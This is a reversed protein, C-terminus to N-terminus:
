YAFVDKLNLYKVPGYQELTRVDLMEKKGLVMINYKKDKMYKTSFTKLDNFTMGPVKTFVDKRLDYTLNFKRANEYNFLVRSKTIRETRIKNIVAEKADAFSKQSEPMDNILSMMNKMAEPLKDVQTGIYTFVFNSRDPRAPGRYGAYASYALARAERLEQFVISAMSGGFYENFIRIAPINDKNFKISKSLMVIEVQKMDYDAVYVNNQTNELEAFKTEPPIEKMKAPLKHAKDLLSVLQKEPHTGYYLIHHPYSCLDKILNIIAAPKTARLEDESLINTFPSKLGYVGYNYMASWLITEKSLKDDQRQKLIDSVMNTFAAENPRPEALLSEFLELGRNFNESLGSLSVWVQDESSAVNLSCGAKYLEQQFEAPTYQANGLYKIYNVALGLKKNHDTGMDFVYYLEFTKNETNAKYYVTIAKKLSLKKIDKEYDIFVPEIPAPKKEKISKVFGSQDNRNLEVPTIHPKTVKQVNKDVGTRKYVVVYNNGYFKKAFEMIDNKTIKSYRDISNVDESWPEEMIFSNMMAMARSGNSEDRKVRSLKMDNIIAPLLWDPFEGKKVLEVQSLLLDKVEELKQGEKPKGTFTHVAYDKMIDPYSNAELVKQAQNLNLDILGAQSNSLIMCMMTLLDAERTGAGPLRFGLVVSEADPGLVEKAVPMTIPSEVPPIFAKIEKKKWSGFRADVLRIVQDPDFDGSLCIAINNPVYRENFYAKLSILSPNKLHEITGITTQTGYTHKQFINAYLTEWVKDEDRDLSMNKEEYVAELETHFIRFVANQFRDAEITLWNEVQNSPIDNIYVTQEVSTFANTGKAGIVSLMKDYENAIASHSAVGSISDILHYVAKRKVTDKLSRHVEFLSDIKHLEIQETMFDKTGYHNTGKFMMHELYHSLGTNDHPDNKSGTRVAIATQIRPADKYVSLYVKLGNDLTYIRVNMPDNPFSEFKYTKQALSTGTILAILLLTNIVKKM